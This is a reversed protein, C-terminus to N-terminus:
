DKGVWGGGRGTKSRRRWPRTYSRTVGLDKLLLPKVRWRLLFLLARNIHLKSVYKSAYHILQQFTSRLCLKIRQLQLRRVVGVRASTVWMHGGVRTWREGFTSMDKNLPREERKNSFEKGCGEVKGDEPM